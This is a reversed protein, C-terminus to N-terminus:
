IMAHCLFAATSARNLERMWNKGVVVFNSFKWLWSSVWKYYCERCNLISGFAGLRSQWSVVRLQCGQGYPLSSQGSELLTWTHLFSSACLWLVKQFIGAVPLLHRPFWHTRHSSTNCHCEENKDHHYMPPQKASLSHLISAFTVWHGKLSQM